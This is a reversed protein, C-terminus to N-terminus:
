KKGSESYAISEAQKKSTVVNGQPDKLNGTNFERM